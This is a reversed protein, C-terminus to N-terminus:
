FPWSQGAFALIYFKPELDEIYRPAFESTDVFPTLCVLCRALALRSERVAFSEVAEVLFQPTIAQSLDVTLEPQGLLDNM